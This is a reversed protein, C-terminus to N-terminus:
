KKASSPKPKPGKGGVAKKMNNSFRRTSARKEVKVTKKKPPAKESM